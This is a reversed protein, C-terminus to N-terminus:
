VRRFHRANEYSKDVTETVPNYRCVIVDSTRTGNCSLYLIGKDDVALGSILSPDSIIDLEQHETGDLNCMYLASEGLDAVYYLTGNLRDVAICRSRILTNPIEYAGAGTIDDFRVIGKLARNSTYNAVYIRGQSDYDVDSPVFDDESTFGALEQGIEAYTLETWGTGNMDEIEVLRNNLYDPAAIKTQALTDIPVTIATAEGATLTETVSGSFAIATTVSTDSVVATVEFTRSAGDAVEVVFDTTTGDGTATVDDMDSGSVTMDFAAIETLSHNLTVTVTSGRDEIEAAEFTESEEDGGQAFALIHTAGAPLSTDQPIVISIEDAGTLEAEGLANEGELKQNASSGWYIVYRTVASEDTSREITVTGGIEGSGMDTDTFIVSGPGPLGSGGCSVAFLSLLVAASAVVPIFVRRM